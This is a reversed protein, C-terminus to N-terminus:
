IEEKVVFGAGAGVGQLGRNSWTYPVSRGNGM